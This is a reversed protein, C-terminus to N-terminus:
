TLFITDYVSRLHYGSQKYFTLAEDNEDNVFLSISKTRWMLMRALQSMCSRGYGQRRARPNVWVGELYTTEPTETVVDAKFILDGDEMLVWTRGQKVRRACRAAFGDADKVRPDVGSEELAM